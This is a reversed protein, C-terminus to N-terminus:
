RRLFYAAYEFEDADVVVPVWSTSSESYADSGRRSFDTGTTYTTVPERVIEETKGLYFRAWVVENAGIKRAFRRLDSDLQPKLPATTRFETRGLIHVGKPEGTVQLTRLFAAKHERQRSEPWQGRPVDSRAEAEKLEELGDILRKWDVERVSM